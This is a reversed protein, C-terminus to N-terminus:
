IDETAKWDEWGEGTGRNFVVDTDLVDQARVAPLRRVEDYIPTFDQRTANFLQDFSDIVFYTKQFTDIRYGTRMIRKIDFGIRNPTASDLCYISEGKSSVIGAGYIRLGAKTRILGFEVSYWYLRAFNALMGEEMARLGGKGYAEMYDAFVPNILLPVHGFMDHFIDPEQLYDIQEPKRIWWSAPFQRNALHHFFVDDPVLGPVCVIKWGTAESLIQNLEHFVPIRDKSLNLRKLGDLFEDCARGPLMAEQREYLQRWMAHDAETYQEVPQDLTFDPRLTQGAFLGLEFQERLKETLQGTFGPPPTATGFTNTGTQLSM